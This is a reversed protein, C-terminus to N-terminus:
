QNNEQYNKYNPAGNDSPSKPRTSIVDNRVTFLRIDNPLCFDMDFPLFLHYHKFFTLLKQMGSRRVIMSYAGYRAGVKRINDSLDYRQIFRDPDVPEFNPRWAYATCPVNIGYDNVTDRDLLIDWGDKGVLADLEEILLPLLNPDRVIQIDDEM